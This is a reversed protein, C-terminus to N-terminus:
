SSGEASDSTAIEAATGSNWFSVRDPALSRVDREQAIAFSFTSALNGIFHDAAACVAQEVLPRLESGLQDEEKEGILAAPALWVRLGSARLAAIDPSDEDPEDTAVFIMDTGIARAAALAEEAVTEASPWCMQETVEVGFRMRQYFDLGNSCFDSYGRRRLHIAVYSPESGGAVADARLARELRSAPATVADVWQFRRRIDRLTPDFHLRDVNFNYSPAFDFAIVRPSQQVRRSDDGGTLGSDDDTAADSAGFGEEETLGLRSMTAKDLRGNHETMVTSTLQDMAAASGADAPLSSEATLLASVEVAQSAWEDEAAAWYARGEGQIYPTQGRGSKAQVVESHVSIRTPRAWSDESHPPGHLWRLGLERYYAGDYIKRADRRPVLYPPHVIVSRLVPGDDEDDEWMQPEDEEEEAQVEEDADADPGDDDYGVTELFEETEIVGHTSANRLAALDFFHGTPFWRQDLGNEILVSLMMDLEEQPSSSRGDAAASEGSFQPASQSAALAAAAEELLEETTKLVMFEPLVLVRGMAEAVALAHQLAWLQNNFQQSCIGPRTTIVCPSYMLYRPSSGAPDVMEVGDNSSITSRMEGATGFGDGGEECLENAQCQGHMSSPM